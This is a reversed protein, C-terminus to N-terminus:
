KAKRAATSSGLGKKLQGKQLGRKEAEMSTM